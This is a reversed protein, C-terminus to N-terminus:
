LISVDRIMSLQNFIELYKPNSGDNVILVQDFVGKPLGKIVEIIKEEPNYAPILLVKNM